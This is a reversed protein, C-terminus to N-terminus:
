GAHHHHLEWEEAKAEGEHDAGRLNEYGSFDAGPKINPYKMSQEAADSDPVAGLRAEVVRVPM